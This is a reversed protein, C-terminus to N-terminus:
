HLAHRRGLARPRGTTREYSATSALADALAGVLALTPSAGAGSAEHASGPLAVTALSQGDSGRSLLFGAGAELMTMIATECAGADILAEVRAVGIPRLGDILSRAPAVLLLANIERVRDQAEDGESVACCLSLDRLADLWEGHALMGSNREPM